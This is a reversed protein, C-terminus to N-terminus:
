PVWRGLHDSTEKEFQREIWKRLRDVHRPFCGLYVCVVPVFAFEIAAILGLPPIPRFIFLPVSAGAGLCASAFLAGRHPKYPEPM